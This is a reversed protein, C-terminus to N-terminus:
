RGGSKNRKIEAEHKEISALTGKQIGFPNFLREMEKISAALEVGLPTNDSISVYKMRSDKASNNAKNFAALDANTISLCETGEKMWGIARDIAAGNANSNSMCVDFRGDSALVRAMLTFDAGKDDIFNIEDLCKSGSRLLALRMVKKAADQDAFAAGREVKRAALVASIVYDNTIELQNLRARMQKVKNQMDQSPVDGSYLNKDNVMKAFEEARADVVLLIKEDDIAVLQAAGNDAYKLMVLPPEASFLKEASMGKVQQRVAEVKMEAEKQAVSEKHLAELRDGYGWWGDGKNKNEPLALEYSGTNDTVIFGYKPITDDGGYTYGSIYTINKFPGQAGFLNNYANIDPSNVDIRVEGNEKILRMGALKQVGAITFYARDNDAIFYDKNPDLMKKLDANFKNINDATSSPGISHLKMLAMVNLWIFDLNQDVVRQARITDRLATIKEEISKFTTQSSVDNLIGRIDVQQQTQVVGQPAM